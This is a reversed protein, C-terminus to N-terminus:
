AAAECRSTPIACRITVRRTWDSYLYFNFRRVKYPCNNSCYRTGVCRNYVMQNIGEGSHVTAAVPCVLECPANECQMCPVPQYYLEPDDLTGKFYRDVRIWHMHRGKGVEAKGVVAINNEAQCAIVCSSCGVCANLDIAMGWKYGEYKYDPYLTLYKQLPKDEEKETLSDLIRRSNMWRASAFRSVRNWRRPTSPPRSITREALRRSRSVRAKARRMPPKCCIRMSVSLTASRAAGRGAMGSICRLRRRQRPGTSDLSTRYHDAGSVQDSARRRHCHRTAPRHGPSIWVANDWTMKTEPKPCEQLWGLNAFAGDWITPDPRFQIEIGQANSSAASAPPKASVTVPAATTNPVIGDHLATQWFTDFDQAKSSTQWYERVVEHASKDSDGALTSFIENPTHGDYLPAILPQVFTVTGDYGRTDSWSELFHAENVHWQCYEATENNYLGMHARFPVKNLASLFDLDAPVTYVPNGGLILLTKVKGANMEGVLEKISALQDAPNAEIPDTYVVTKGVAGLAANMAHALAHVSPPQFDGPIVVCRGTHAKLDKAIAPIAPHASGSAAGSVGVAAALAFAFAEIESPKLVFRHDAMGGTPSPATEVAYMRAQTVQDPPIGEAVVQSVQQPPSNDEEVHTAAQNRFPADPGPQYGEQRDEKPKDTVLTNTLVHRRAAFDHALRLNGPGCALFGGDLSVIVDANELQYITNVPRGFAAQAGAFASHRGAPEWQHWKAGPLQQLFDKIQSGLTPSVVTETLIRFSAGKDFDAAARETALAGQFAM